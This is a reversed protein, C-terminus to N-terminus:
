EWPSRSPSGATGAYGGASKWERLGAIETEHFGRVRGYDSTVLLVAKARPDGKDRLYTALEESYVGIYHGPFDVFSLVVESEKTEGSPSPKIDWTMMYERTEEQGIFPGVGTLFFTFLATFLMGSAIVVNGKRSETKALRFLLLCLGIFLPLGGIFLAPRLDIYALLM